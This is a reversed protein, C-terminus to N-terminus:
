FRFWGLNNDLGQIMIMSVKATATDIVKRETLDSKNGILLKNVNDTAYREIEELWTRVNEFTEKETCDYM